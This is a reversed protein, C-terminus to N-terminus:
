DQHYHKTEPNQNPDTISSLLSILRNTESFTIEKTELATEFGNYSLDKASRRHIMQERRPNFILSSNSDTIKANPIDNAEGSFYILYMYGEEMVRLVMVWDLFGM